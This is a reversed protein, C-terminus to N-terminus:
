RLPFHYSGLFMLVAVVPDIVDWEKMFHELLIEHKYPIPKWLLLFLNSDKSALNHRCCCKLLGILFHSAELVM